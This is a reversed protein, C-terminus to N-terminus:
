QVQEMIITKNSYNKQQTQVLNTLEDYIFDPARVYVKVDNLNEDTTILEILRSALENVESKSYTDGIANGDQVILVQSELAFPDYNIFIGNM